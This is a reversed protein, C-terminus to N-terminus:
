DWKQHFADYAAKYREKLSRYQAINNVLQSLLDEHFYDFDGHELASDTYTAVHKAGTSITGLLGELKNSLEILEGVGDGGSKKLEKQDGTAHFGFTPLSENIPSELLHEILKDTNM